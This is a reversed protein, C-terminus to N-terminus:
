YGAYSMNKGAFGMPKRVKSQGPLQSAGDGGIGSVKASAPGKAGPKRFVKDLAGALLGYAGSNDQRLGDSMKM